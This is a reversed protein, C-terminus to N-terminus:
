DMTVKPLQEYWQRAVDPYQYFMRAMFAIAGKISVIEPHKYRGQFTKIKETFKELDVPEVNPDLERELLEMMEAARDKILKTVVGNDDEGDTMGWLDCGRFMLRGILWEFSTFNDPHEEQSCDVIGATSHTEIHNEERAGCFQVTCYRCDGKDFPCNVKEPEEEVLTWDEICMPICYDSVPIFYMDEEEHVEIEPATIRIAPNTKNILTKM